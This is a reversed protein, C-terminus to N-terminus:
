VSQYEWHLIEFIRVSMVMAIDGMGSFLSSQNECCLIGMGSYVNGDCYERNQM